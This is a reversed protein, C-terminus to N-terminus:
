CERNKSCPTNVSMLLMPNSIRLYGGMDLGKKAKKYSGERLLFRNIRNNEEWGTLGIIKKGIDFLTM